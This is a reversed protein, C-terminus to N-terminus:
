SVVRVAERLLDIGGDAVVNPLYEILDMIQSAMTQEKNM